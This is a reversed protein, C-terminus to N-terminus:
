IPLHGPGGLDDIESCVERLNLESEVDEAREVYLARTVDYGRLRDCLDEVLPRAEPSACSVMALEEPIEGPLDSAFESFLLFRWLEDAVPSWNKSRTKLQLGLTSLVLGRAETAWADTAKLAM